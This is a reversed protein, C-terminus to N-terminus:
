SNKLAARLIDESPQHLVILKGSNSDCEIITNNKPMTQPQSTTIQYSNNEEMSKIREDTLINQIANQAKLLRVPNM